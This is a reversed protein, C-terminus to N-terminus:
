ILGIWENPNPPLRTGHKVLGCYDCGGFESHSYHCTHSLVYGKMSHKVNFLLCVNGFPWSSFMHEGGLRLRIACVKTIGKGRSLMYCSLWCTLLCCACGLLSLHFHVVWAVCDGNKHNRFMFWLLFEFGRQENIAKCNWWKYTAFFIIWWCLTSNGFTQYSFTSWVGGQARSHAELLM